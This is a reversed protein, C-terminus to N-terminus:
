YNKEINWVETPKGNKELAAIEEMGFEINTEEQIM